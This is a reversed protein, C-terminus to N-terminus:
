PLRRLAGPAPGELPIWLLGSLLFAIDALMEHPRRERDIPVVSVGKAGLAIARGFGLVGLAALAALTFGDTWSDM